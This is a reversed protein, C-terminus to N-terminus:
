YLWKKRQILSAAPKTKRKTNNALASVNEGTFAESPKKSAAEPRGHWTTFTNTPSQDQDESAFTLRPKIAKYVVGNPVSVPLVLQFHKMAAVGDHIRFGPSKM